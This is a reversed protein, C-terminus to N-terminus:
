IIKFTRKEEHEFLRWHIGEFYGNRVFCDENPIGTTVRVLTIGAAYGKPSYGVGFREPSAIPLCFLENSSMTSPEDPFWSYNNGNIVLIKNQGHSVSKLWGNLTIYGGTVQGFVNPGALDVKADIVIPLPKSEYDYNGYRVQVDRSVWSWSPALYDHPRLYLDKHEVVKWLLSLPLSHRWVGALYNDGDLLSLSRQEAIGSLAVLKDTIRTLSCSTYNNIAENWVDYKSFSSDYPTQYKVRRVDPGSVSVDTELKGGPYSECATLADCEWFVQQGAFHLVRPSLLREQFVWGRSLLPSCELERDWFGSDCIMLEGSCAERSYWSWDVSVRAQYIDRIDRKFFLGESSDKAASAAINLFGNEYVNKMTVSEKLWDLKSGPGGQLICLSDIWIYQIGLERTIKIADKFTQPLDSLMIGRKFANLDMLQIMSSPNYGWCHSLTVYAGRFTSDDKCRLRVVRQPYRGRGIDLLRTPYWTSNQEPNLSPCDLHQVCCTKIWQQVTMWTTPGDTSSSHLPM